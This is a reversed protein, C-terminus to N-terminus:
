CNQNLQHARKQIHNPNVLILNHQLTLTRAAFISQNNGKRWQAVLNTSNQMLNRCVNIIRDSRNRRIVDIDSKKVSSYIKRNDAYKIVKDRSGLDEVYINWLTALTPERTPLYHHNSGLLCFKASETPFGPPNHNSTSLIWM